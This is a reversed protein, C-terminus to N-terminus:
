AKIIWNCDPYVFTCWPWHFSPAPGNFIWRECWCSQRSGAVIWGDVRVRYSWFYASSFAIKKELSINRWVNALVTWFTRKIRACKLILRRHKTHSASCRTADDCMPKSRLSVSIHGRPGTCEYLAAVIGDIVLAFKWEPAQILYSDFSHVCKWKVCSNLTYHKTFSTINRTYLIPWALQQHM